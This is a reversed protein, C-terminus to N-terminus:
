ALAEFTKQFRKFNKEIILEMNDESKEIGESNDKDILTKLSSSGNLRVSEEVKITYSFGEQNIEEFVTKLVDPDDLLWAKLEKKLIEKDAILTM